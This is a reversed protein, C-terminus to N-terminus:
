VLNNLCSGVDEGFLIMIARKDSRYLKRPYPLLTSLLHIHYSLPNNYLNPDVNISPPNTYGTNTKSNVHTSILQPFYIFTTYIVRTLNQVHQFLRDLNKLVVLCDIYNQKRPPVKYYM